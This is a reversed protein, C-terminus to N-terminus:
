VHQNQELLECDKDKVAQNLLSWTQVATHTVLSSPKAEISRDKTKYGLYFEDFYGIKYM